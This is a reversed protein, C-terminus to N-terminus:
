RLIIVSSSQLTDLNSKLIVKYLGSSMESVPINIKTIGNTPFSLINVGFSNYMYIYLDQNEKEAGSIKIEIFDSAPNPHMYFSINQDDPSQSVIRSILTQGDFDVAIVRYNINSSYHSDYDEFYYQGDNKNGLSLVTGINEWKNNDSINKTVIYHSINSESLVNWKLTQFNKNKSVSIDGWIVPLAGFVIGVDVHNYKQCSDIVVLATTGVGFSGVVDSDLNDDGRNPLTYSYEPEIDCSVFYSGNRLSDFAYVGDSTTIGIEILNYDQDYLVVTKNAIGYDEEDQVGNQNNDFWVKTVVSGTCYFGGNFYCLEDGSIVDINNTTNIGNSHTIYNNFYPNDGVFPLGAIIEKPLSTYVQIYYRGPPVCFEYYGDDSPSGPKIGTYRQDYLITDGADIRWLNILLGNIGNENSNLTDSFNEDFYMIGCIKACEYFGADLDINDLGVEVIFVDTTNLGNSGTIDSNLASNSFNLKTHIYVSSPSMSIFYNGSLINIFGYVGGSDSTTTSVIIGDSARHLNVIVNSIGPEDIEQLGNGNIDNWIKDGISSLITLGANLTYEDNLDVNILNCETFGNALASNDLNSGTITFAYTGNLSSTSFFLKYNGDAVENFIYEGNLDTQTAEVFQGACTILLVPINSFSTELPDILGNVDADFWVKGTISSQSFCFSSLLVIMSTYFYRALKNIASVYNSTQM